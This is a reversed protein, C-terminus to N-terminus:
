HVPFLYYSSTSDFHNCSKGNYIFPTRNIDELQIKRVNLTNAESNVIKLPTTDVTSDSSGVAKEFTMDSDSDDEKTYPSKRAYHELIHNLLTAIPVVFLM